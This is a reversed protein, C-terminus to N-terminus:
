GGPDSGPRPLRPSLLAGEQSRFVLAEHSSPLLIKRFCASPLFFPCKGWCPARTMQSPMHEFKVRIVCACPLKQFDLKM